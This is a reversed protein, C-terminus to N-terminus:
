ISRRSLGRAVFEAEYSPYTDALSQPAITAEIDRIYKGYVLERYIIEYKKVMKDASFTNRAYSRCYNRDILDVKKVAEIMEPVNKVVYGSKGHKIVEPISGKDFAIIPTGCAMAEILTLGFPEPWTVPHLFALAHKYLNNREKEGVEGIWTITKNLFPKIEKEFYDRNIHPEYKAAIILPLKLYRAVRIAHHVGKQPCIRGVFLLYGKSHLSFPYKSFSLGNYVTDIYNLDPAGKRQANSISVLAPKPFRRFLAANEESFSGHLTLVSPVPSLHAFVLGFTGTHDHIVDFQDQQEYATGLHIMSYRIRESINEGALERLNQKLTAVHRASTYSDGSAFLTVKHGRKVLGETLEYVVRETGGYYKPPVSEIPPAIQAIRM